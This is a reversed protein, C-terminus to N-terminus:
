LSQKVIYVCDEVKMVSTDFHLLPEDSGPIEFDEVHNGERGRKEAADYELYIFLPNELNEKIIKRMSKYPTVFSCIVPYGQAELYRAVTVARLINELRGAASYDQNKFVSRFADGDLIKVQKQRIPNASTDVFSNALVPKIAEALTTKGSCPQGFIWITM